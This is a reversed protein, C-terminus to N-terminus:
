KQDDNPVHRLDRAIDRMEKELPAEQMEQLRELPEAPLSGGALM